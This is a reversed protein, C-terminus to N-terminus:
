NIENLLDEMRSAPVVFDWRGGPMTYIEFTGHKLNRSSGVCFDGSAHDLLDNLRGEDNLAALDDHCSIDIQEEHEGIDTGWLNCGSGDHCSYECRSYVPEVDYIDIQECLKDVTEDTYEYDNDELWKRIRTPWEHSVEDVIHIYGDAFDTNETCYQEAWKTVSQLVDSVIEVEADHRDEESSHWEGKVDQFAELIPRESGDSCLVIDDRHPGVPVLPELGLGPITRQQESM